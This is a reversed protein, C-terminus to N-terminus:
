RVKQAVVAMHSSLNSEQLLKQLQKQGFSGLNRLFYVWFRKEKLSQMSNNVIDIDLRGPTIIENIRFGHRRLLIDASYPNIFNLHHPPFLSKSKEWLLQIDFGLSSLTTFVLVERPKLVNRCTAFFKDPDALHEILEFCTFVKKDKKNFDDATVSEFPKEIVRIGKSKCAQAMPGSPEIGYVNIKRRNSKLFEVCFTGYGSGIDVLGINKNRPYFRKIVRKVLQIKPAQVLKRRAKETKKYFHESLFKISEGERYYLNFTNARPRPNVFLTSCKPCVEFAFGNKKFAFVTKSSLCGPCRIKFFKARKFFRRSDKKELQLFKDFLKRPRIKEEKM